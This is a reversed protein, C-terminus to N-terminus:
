RIIFAGRTLLLSQERRFMELLSMVFKVFYPSLGQLASLSSPTLDLSKLEVKHNVDKDQCVDSLVELDLLVM